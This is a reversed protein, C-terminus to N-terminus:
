IGPKLIKEDLLSQILTSFIPKAAMIVRPQHTIFAILSFYQHHNVTIMSFPILEVYLFGHIHMSFDYSFNSHAACSFLFFFYM